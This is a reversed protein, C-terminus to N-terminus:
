RGESKLWRDYERQKKVKEHDRELVFATWPLLYDKRRNLVIFYDPEGELELWICVRREGKRKQEWIKLGWEVSKNITPKAWPLRECRRFDYNRNREDSGHTTMHYFTYAKGDQEPHRKCGLRQGQFFAPNKIFDRVFLEYLHGIYEELNGSFDELCILEPLDIEEEM